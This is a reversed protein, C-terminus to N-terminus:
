NSNRHFRTRIPETDVGIGIIAPGGTAATGSVQIATASAARGLAKGEYFDSADDGASRNV